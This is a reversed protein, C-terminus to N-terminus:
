FKRVMGIKKKIIEIINNEISNKKVIELVIWSNM